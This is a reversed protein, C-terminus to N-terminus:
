SAEGSRFGHAQMDVLNRLPQGAVFHGLNELFLDFVDDIYRDTSVSSHASILTNPLDWIPSHSPLPEESFVDLAAGGISGNRLAIALADEDVLSGRAVNVLVAGKRMAALEAKGILHRTEDTAPASVVVADCQALMERLGEPGFLEDAVPSTMGPRFSRKQGLVRCGLARCREAVAVGISGLGVIGITSGAFTRGYTRAYEHRRQLEFQEGFHKWFALLRGIVFEAMSGSSVGSSNTVLTRDSMVGAAVFQEIGAGIGHLWRLNPALSPLDQPTHLAILVHTRALAASREDAVSTAWEPPEPHPDGPPITIWESGSNVPLGVVEISPDIACTREVYGSEIYHPYGLCVVLPTDVM